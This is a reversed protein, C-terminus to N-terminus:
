GVKVEGEWSESLVDTIKVKITGASAPIDYIGAVLQDEAPADVVAPQLVAGDYNFDIVVSEVLEKWDGADEKMMSLKQLLNMPYFAEIVLKGDRVHLKAESDRKFQLHAKDRLIDVVEVDLKYPVEKELHAKLDPEHGMCVLLIREVPKTPNKRKEEEFRKYNFNTILENLDQRTAIRNVPMLKVFRGDKEGDYLANGSLPQIELAETILAKADSANRFVDYNNVNFVHIGWASPTGSAPPAATPFLAEQEEDPEDEAVSADGLLRRMTLTIAGMNIDAGLCKRGIERAALLTTGSGMFADLVIEGPQTCSAVIRKLLDVPKQTPYEVGGKMRGTDTWITQLLRGQNEDFWYVRCRAAGQEPDRLYYEGREVAADMEEPSAYPWVRNPSPRAGRWTFQKRSDRGKYTCNDIKFRRGGPYEQGEVYNVTSGDALRVLSFEKLGAPSLKTTVDRWYYPVRERNKAYWFITDHVWGLRAKADNHPDTRQWVVENQLNGPGFVEDLLCRVHHSRHWDCHLWLSGDDRLLERLLILREYLFQLYEDNTWIDSYQKEEFSGHSGRVTKGRLRITKKYDAKSDFPPDIYVLKVQGRYRKLLHSMVQLNDGWYVEDRWGDVDQGYTEKLQAPYYQTSRFPRKGAWRLEPYGRIPELDFKYRDVPEAPFLAPNKPSSDSLTNDKPNM